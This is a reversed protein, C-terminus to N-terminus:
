RKPEGNAPLEPLGIRRFLDSFRPDGHLNNWAPDVALLTLESGERAKYAKELFEFAEGKDGALAYVLAMYSSAALAGSKEAERLDQALHEKWYGREGGGKLANRMMTARKTAEEPTSGSLLQAKENEEIADEYRGMQELLGAFYFHALPFNPAMAITHQFQQYSRSYDGALLYTEGM